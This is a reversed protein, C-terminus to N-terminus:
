AEAIGRDLDRELRTEFPTSQLNVEKDERYKGRSNSKPLNKCSSGSDSDITQGTHSWYSEVTSTSTKTSPTLESEVLWSSLSTDVAIEQDLGKPPNSCRKSSHTLLKFSPELSFPINFEEGLNINEKSQHHKLPTTTAKAKVAKWQTINEVPNLVSHVYQSRDRAIRNSGITKVEQDPSNHVPMPSNVEKDGTEAASFQKRSDISLSFLSESSEEQVLIDDDDDDDDDYLDSEELELDEYEDDSNMCNQYRHNPPYSLIGSTISDLLPESEKQTEEKKGSKTVLNSEVLDNTVEQTSLDEYTTVNLDFTVKKKSNCSVQEEQKEKSQTISNNIPKETNEQKISEIPQLNEVVEHKQDRPVIINASQLSNRHKSTGFCAFFCGMM